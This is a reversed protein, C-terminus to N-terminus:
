VRASASSRPRARRVAVADVGDLHADDGDASSREHPVHGNSAVADEDSEDPAIEAHAATPMAEGDRLAARLRAALNGRRPGEVRDLNLWGALRRLETALADATNAPAGPEVFAGPVVLVGRQRDAKLDVRAALREDLLFPLVYYGYVRKPAPVYIEIRYNFEFLRETRNRHWVIPDFPSVLTAASVRRPLRVDRHLYSVGKLGDIEAPILEGADVLDRVASRFGAVPLRFYDRLEIENAIGLARASVGLLTRMATGDDPTPAALVDPPLVFEPLAYRRAFGSNRSSVLVEGRYFLWELM